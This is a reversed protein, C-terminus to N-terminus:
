PMPGDVTTEKVRKFTLLGEPNPAFTYDCKTHVEFDKIAQEYTLLVHLENKTVKLATYIAEGGPWPRKSDAFLDHSKLVVYEPSMEVLIWGKHFNEVDYQDLKQRNLLVYLKKKGGFQVPAIEFVKLSGSTFGGARYRSNGGIYVPVNGKEPRLSLAKVVRKLDYGALSAYKELQPHYLGTVESVNSNQLLRLNPMQEEVLKQTANKQEAVATSAAFTLAILAVVFRKWTM